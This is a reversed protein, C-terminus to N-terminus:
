TAEASAAGGPADAYLDPFKADRYHDLLRPLGDWWAQPISRTSALAAQVADSATEM